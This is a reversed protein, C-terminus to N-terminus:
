PAEETVVRSVPRDPRPIAVMHYPQTFAMTTVAGPPPSQRRVRVVLQDGKLRVGTVAISYGGSRREGLAVVVVAEQGFDVAPAPRPRAMVATHRRWVAEWEGPDTVLLVMPEKLGSYQGRELTRVAIEGERAAGERLVPAVPRPQDLAPGHGPSMGLSLGLLLALVRLLSLVQM